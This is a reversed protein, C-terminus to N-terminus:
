KIRGGFNGLSILFTGIAALIMLEIGFVSLVIGILKYFLHSNLLGYIHIIILINIGIFNGIILTLALLVVISAIFINKFDDIM